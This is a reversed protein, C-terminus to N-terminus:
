QKIQNHAKSLLNEMDQNKIKLENVRVELAEINVSSFGEKRPSQAQELQTLFSKERSKMENKMKGVEQEKEQGLEKERKLKKKMMKYKTELEQFDQIQKQLM